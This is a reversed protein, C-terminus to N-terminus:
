NVILVNVMIATENAKERSFTLTGSGQAICLIGAETYADQDAPAPAVIVASAATVGSASVTLTNGDTWGATPLTRGAQTVKEDVYLKNAAEDAETPAQLGRLVPFQFSSMTDERWQFDVTHHSTTSVQDIILDGQLTGRTVPVAGVQAATVGHPNDEYNVHATLSAQVEAASGAPDYKTPDVAQGVNVTGYGM